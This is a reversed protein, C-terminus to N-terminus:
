SRARRVGVERVTGDIELQSRDEVIPYWGHGAKRAMDKALEKATRECCHVIRQGEVGFSVHKIAISYHSVTSRM